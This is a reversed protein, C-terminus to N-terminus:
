VVPKILNVHATNGFESIQSFDIWGKERRKLKSCSDPALCQSIYLQGAHTFAHRSGPLPMVALIEPKACDVKVVANGGQVAVWAIDPNKPDFAANLTEPTEDGAVERLKKIKLYNNKEGTIIDVAPIKSSGLLLIRQDDAGIFRFHAPHKFGSAVEKIKKKAKWDVWILSGPSDQRGAAVLVVDKNLPSFRIEHLITDGLEIHDVPKADKFFVLEGRQTKDNRMSILTRGDPLSVGHGFFRKGASPELKQVFAKKKLDVIGAEDGWKSVGYVLQPDRESQVFSHAMFPLPISMLPLFQPDYVKLVSPRNEGSKYLSAGNKSRDGKAILLWHDESSSMLGASWAWSPIQTLAAAALSAGLFERRKIM